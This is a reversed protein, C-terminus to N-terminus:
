EKIFLIKLLEDWYVYKNILVCEVIIMALFPIFWGSLVISDLGCILIIITLLTGYVLIGKLFLKM